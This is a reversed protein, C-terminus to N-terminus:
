FQRNLSMAGVIIIILVTVFVLIFVTLFIRSVSKPVIGAVSVESGTTLNIVRDLEYRGSKVRQDVLDLWDGDRVSGALTPGRLEVEAPQGGDPDEIRFTLVTVTSTSNGRGEVRAQYWSPM